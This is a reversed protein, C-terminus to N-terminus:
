KVECEFWHLAMVAICHLMTEHSEMTPFVLSVPAMAGIDDSFKTASIASSARGDQAPAFAAASAILSAAIMSKM